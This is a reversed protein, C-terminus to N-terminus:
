GLRAAWIISVIIPHSTLKRADPALVIISRLIDNIIYIFFVISLSLSSQSLFDHSLDLAIIKNSPLAM